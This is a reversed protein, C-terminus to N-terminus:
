AIPGRGYLIYVITGAYLALAAVALVLAVRHRRLFGSATDPPSATRPAGSAASATREASSGGGEEAPAPPVGGANGTGPADARRESTARGDPASADGRGPVVEDGSVALAEDREALKTTM